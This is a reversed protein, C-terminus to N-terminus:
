MTELKSPRKGGSLAGRKVSPKATHRSAPRRKLSPSSIRGCPKVPQCGRRVSLGCSEGTAIQKQTSWAKGAVQGGVDDIPRSSVQRVAQSYVGLRTAKAGLGSPEM